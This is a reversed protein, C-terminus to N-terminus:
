GGTVPPFFAIEDGDKICTAWTALDQNVAVRLSKNDALATKWAGGRAVLLARLAYLDRVDHPLDLSEGASGLQERLSAFFLLKTSM